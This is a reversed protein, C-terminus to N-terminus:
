AVAAESTAAGGGTDGGEGGGMMGGQGSFGFALSKSTGALNPQTIQVMLNLAEEMVGIRRQLEKNGADIGYQAILRPLALATIGERQEALRSNALNVAELQNQREAFALRTGIDAVQQETDRIANNRNEQFASSGQIKQGSQTFNARDRLEQLQANQTVPRIAADIMAKLFPNSNPDGLTAKLQADAAAGVGNPDFENARYQELAQQEDGTIPAVFPGDIAPGGTRFRNQLASVVTGRLAKYERPTYDKVKSSSQSFNGASGGQARRQGVARRDVARRGGRFEWERAGHVIEDSM